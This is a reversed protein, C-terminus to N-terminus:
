NGVIGDFEKDIFAQMTETRVNGQAALQSLCRLVKQESDAELILVGDYAGLTWYQGEIKVGAQAAIKDFTHARNTSKKLNKAGAETFRLLSIYRAMIYREKKKTPENHNRGGGQSADSETLGPSNFQDADYL